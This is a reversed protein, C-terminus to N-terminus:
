TRPPEHVGQKGAMEAIKHQEWRVIHRQINFAFPTALLDLLVVGAVPWYWWPGGPTVSDAVVLFLMSGASALLLSGYWRPRIFVSGTHALLLTAAALVPWFWWPGNSTVQDIVVLGLSGGLWFMTHASLWRNPGFAYGAHTLIAVGWAGVPWLMWPTDTGSLLNLVTLDLALVLFFFGHMWFSRQIRATRAISRQVSDTIASEHIRAALQDKKAQEWSSDYFELLGYRVLAHVALFLSSAALVYQFWLTDPDTWVNQLFIAANVCVFLFGHAGFLSWDRTRLKRIAIVLSIVIAANALMAPFSSPNILVVVGLLALSMGGAITLAREATTIGFHVLGLGIVPIASVSLPWLAWPQDPAVFINLGILGANLVALPIATTGFAGRWPHVLVTHVSLPMALAWMVIPFWLFSRDALLNIVLCAIAVVAFLAVHALHLKLHRVRRRADDESPSGPSSPSLAGEGGALAPQPRLHADLAGFAIDLVDMFGMPAEELLARFEPEYRARWTEPYLKLIWTTNM